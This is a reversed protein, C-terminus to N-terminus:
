HMLLLLNYTHQPAHDAALAAPQLAHATCPCCCCATPTHCHLRTTAILLLMSGMQPSQQM